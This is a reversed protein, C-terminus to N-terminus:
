IDNDVPLMLVVILVKVNYDVNYHIGAHGYSM